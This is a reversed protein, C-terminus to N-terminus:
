LSILRAVGIPVYINNYATEKKEQKAKHLYLYSNIEIDFERARFIVPLLKQSSDLERLLYCTNLTCLVRRERLLCSSNGLLEPMLSKVRKKARSFLHLNLIERLIKLLFLDRFAILLAVKSAKEIQKLLKKLLRKCFLLGDRNDQLYLFGLLSLGDELKLFLFPIFVLTMLDFGELFLSVMMTIVLQILIIM